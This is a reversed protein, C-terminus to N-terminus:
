LFALLSNNQHRVIAGKKRDIVCKAIDIVLMFSQLRKRRFM